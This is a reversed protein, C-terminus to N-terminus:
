SNPDVVMKGSKIEELYKGMQSRPILQVGGASSTKRSGGAGGGQSAEFLHPAERLQRQAWEKLTMPESKENFQGKLTVTDDDALDAVSMARSLIDILAGPRPTGVENVVKTVEQQIRLSKYKGSLDENRRQTELLAKEKATLRQEFDKAMTSTRNKLVEDFKGAKLLEADQSLNMKEQLDLLRQYEEPDIGKLKELQDKIQKNESSLRLNNTRFEAVQSKVPSDDV